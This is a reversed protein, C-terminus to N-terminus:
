TPIHMWTIPGGRAPNRDRAPLLVSILRPPKKQLSTAGVVGSQTKIIRTFAAPMAQVPM